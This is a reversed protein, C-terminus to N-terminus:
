KSEEKLLEPNEYINGIVKSHIAFLRNFIHSAYGDAWATYFSGDYWIIQMKTCLVDGPIHTIIDGQYVKQNHGDKLGTYRQSREIAQAHTSSSLEPGVFLGESMFGWYHWSHFKGRSFIAQRFEIDNM